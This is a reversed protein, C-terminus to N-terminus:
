VIPKIDIQLLVGILRWSMFMPYICILGFLKKLLHNLFAQNMECLLVVICCCIAM